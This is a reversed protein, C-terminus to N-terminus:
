KRGGSTRSLFAIWEQAREEKGDKIRMRWLVIDMSVGRETHASEVNKAFIILMKPLINQSFPLRFYHEELGGTKDSIKLFEAKLIEKEGDSLKAYSNIIEEASGEGNQIRVKISNVFIAKKWAEM